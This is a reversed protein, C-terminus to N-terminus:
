ESTAEKAKAPTVIAMSGNLFVPYIMQPRRPESVFEKIRFTYPIVGCVGSYMM